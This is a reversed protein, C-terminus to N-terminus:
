CTLQNGVQEVRRFGVRQTATQVVKGKPDTLVYEVNYLAPSEASWPAVPLKVTFDLPGPIIPETALWAAKAAKPMNGDWYTAMFFDEGAKHEAITKETWKPASKAIVKAEAKTKSKGTIRVQLKYNVFDENDISNIHARVHLQGTRNDALLTPTAYLVSL